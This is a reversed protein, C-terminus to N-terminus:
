NSENLVRSLIEGFDYSIQSRYYDLSIDSQALQAALHKAQLLVDVWEDISDEMILSRVYCTKTQSIRHIRDQAQLYDDLSFGRDYFIVHNAVTLTLGEKAAGPTAIFVRTSPENKFRKISRNRDDISMKGHVKCTRFEKLERHLWDVNETFSSWIICKEGDNCVAQVLDRLYPLKGPEKDYSDDVIAPNSAVQVLRLLRKLTSESVDEHPIGEKLVILRMADRVQIYKERQLPEWDTSISEFIKQPLEILGSRKTERVAFDKIKEFIQALQSELANQGSKDDYLDNRLDLRNQFDSFDNGLSRGEDLFRVQAWLDYPRNAVPTGTMIVRRKFDPGLEFLARAVRSYPNKIKTSEDLIVGTDRAKLFLKMRQLESVAIEYNTLVIRSPGNFVHYNTRKNQTLVAPKVYCHESLESLWNVLLSKKVVILVTDVIKKELWYLLLDIAIKSKGLGQEHFVAAYPLDRIAEVAQLQYPFSRHKSQLRPERRLIMKTM